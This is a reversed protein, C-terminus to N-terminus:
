LTVTYFITTLLIVLHFIVSNLLDKLILPKLYTNYLSKKIKNKPLKVDERHNVEKKVTNNHAERHFLLSLCDESNQSHIKM